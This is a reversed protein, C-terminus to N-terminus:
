VHCTPTIAFDHNGIRYVVFPELRRVWSTDTAIRPNYYYYVDSRIVRHGLRLVRFAAEISDESPHRHFHRTHIGDFQGPRYIVQELTKSRRAMRNIVVNGVALKGQMPEGAAESEILRALLLVEWDVTVVIPPEEACHTFVKPSNTTFLTAPAVSTSASLLVIVAMVITKMLNSKTLLRHSWSM